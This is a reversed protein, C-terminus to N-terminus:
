QNITKVSPGQPNQPRRSQTKDNQARIAKMRQPDPPAGPTSEIWSSVAPSSDGTPAAMFIANSGDFLNATFGVHGNNNIVPQDVFGLGINNVFDGAIAVQTIKGKSYVFAGFSFASTEAFFAVDGSSNISPSDAFLFVGGDPSPDDPGVIRSVIGDKYLFVGGSGFFGGDTGNLFSAFAVDGRDDIVPGFRPFGFFLLFNGGGPAPAGDTALPTIAGNSAVFIGAPGPFPQAMFALQDQSNLSMNVINNSVAGGGPLPTAADLLLSTQGGSNLFVGSTQTAPAFGTFAIQGLNNIAPTNGNPDVANGAASDAVVQLSTKDNLLVTGLADSSSIGAAVEGSHNMSFGFMFDVIGDAGISEGQHVAVSRKGPTDGHGPVATFAAAGGPFTTDSILVMDNAGIATATPFVFVPQRSITDGQGIVRSLQSNAFEYLADGHQVESAVFLIQGSSNISGGVLTGSRFVGGDPATQGVSAVSTIHGNAYVFVGTSTTAGLTLASFAIQGANNVSTTFAIDFASGDPLATFEPVLLTRNGNVFSFIGTDASSNSVGSFIVQGLDNFSPPEFFGFPVGDPMVDNSAIIKTVTGSSWLFMGQRGDSLVATFLVQRSSNPAAGLLFSVNGGGPVADGPGVVRTLTNNSLLYTAASFFSGSDTILMDGNRAFSASAPIVLNGTDAVMGNPLFQSISGNAYLFAGSTGPFSVTSTFVIQGLPGLSPTTFSFFQGGGPAPDGPGAIPIIQSGAKLILGGDAVLAVRAQDDFNFELVNSLQPPVPAADGAQLVEKFKFASQAFSTQIALAVALLAFVAVKTWKM